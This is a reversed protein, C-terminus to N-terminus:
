KAALSKHYDSFFSLFEPKTNINKLKNLLDLVGDNLSLEENLLNDLQQYKSGPTRVNEGSKIIKDILEQCREVYNGVGLFDPHIAIATYGYGNQMNAIADGGILTSLLSILLSISFGKGDGISLLAGGSLIEDPKNTPIGLSNIGINTNFLEGNLSKIRVEGATALNPTFDIIVPPNTFPISASFAVSGLVAQEGSPAAVWPNSHAYVIGILGNNALKSTYHGLRGAHSIKCLTSFAISKTALSKESLENVAKELALYGLSNDANCILRNGNWSWNDNSNKANILTPIIHTLLIIGHTNKGLKESALLNEIILNSDYKGLGIKDFITQLIGKVEGGLM